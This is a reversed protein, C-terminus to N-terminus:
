RNLGSRGYRFTSLTYRVDVRLVEVLRRLSRDERYRLTHATRRRAARRVQSRLARPTYLRSVWRPLNIWLAQDTTVQDGPDRGYVRDEVLAKVINGGAAMTYYSTAGQRLNVELVKSVGDRPDRMVDFNATGTYGVGDLLTRMSEVLEPDEVTMIANNNGVMTPEHDAMVVQGVSAFRMRGRADSYTNAVRMVTEDGPILEQVIMDDEYGAGFVRALVDRLEAADEVRYVKEKGAFSLRPYVDTNSPKAIVPYPFPLAEGLAADDMDAPTVIRTRPHPIGHAECTAYFATKDILADALERDVLPITYREGLRDRHDIVVNTYFEICAILLLRRGALEDALRELTAVIGEPTAFDRTARVDMIASHATEHLAARGLALSRVGYAEHLSRAINYAGVGTGLLVPVFDDNGYTM